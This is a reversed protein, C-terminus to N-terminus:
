IIKLMYNCLEFIKFKKRYSAIYQIFMVNLM